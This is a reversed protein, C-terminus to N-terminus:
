LMNSPKYFEKASNMKDMEPDLEELDTQRRQKKLNKSIRQALMGIQDSMQQSMQISRRSRTDAISTAYLSTANVSPANRSNGSDSSDPRKNKSSLNDDNDVLSGELITKQKLLIEARKNLHQLSHKKHRKSKELWDEIESLM